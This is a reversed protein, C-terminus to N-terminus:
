VAGEIEAMPAALEIQIQSLMSLLDAPAAFMPVMGDGQWLIDSIAGLKQQLVMAAEWAQEQAEQLEFALQSMNSM